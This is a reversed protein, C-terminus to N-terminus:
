KLKRMIEGTLEIRHVNHIIRHRIADAITPEGIM